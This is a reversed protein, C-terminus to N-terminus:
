ILVIKETFENFSFAPETKFLGYITSGTGTMSTYIAGEDSLKSKITKLIPHNPFVSTEFDNCIKTETLSDITLSGFNFSNLKPTIGSFAEKTSIHINPNILKIYYGKLDLITSSFVDGKGTVFKPINEIFFPCDSGLSDALLELESNSINLNFLENLATLTFSADASGGGLGAGMPIQKHLHIKCPSISYKSNILQYAKVILNNESSVNISLGSASFEFKDAKNIELIDCWNIPYFISDLNHFGDNRKETIKLGINIKANPFVIM